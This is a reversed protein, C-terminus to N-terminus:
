ANASLAALKSELAAVREELLFLRRDVSIKRAGIAVKEEFLQRIDDPTLGIDDCYYEGGVGEIRLQTELLGRDGVPADSVLPVIMARREGEDDTAFSIGPGFHCALGKLYHSLSMDADTLVVRGSPGRLQFSLRRGDPSPNFGIVKGKNDVFNLTRKSRTQANELITIM